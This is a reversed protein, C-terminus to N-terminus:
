PGEIRVEAVDGTTGDVVVVTVREIVGDDDLIQLSVGWYSRAPVGRRILRVFVRDPEYDVAAKAM